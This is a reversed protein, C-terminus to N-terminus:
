QVMSQITRVEERHGEGAGGEGARLEELAREIEKEEANEVGLGEVAVGEGSGDGLAGGTEEGDFFTGEIWGEAAQGLLLEDGALPVLAEAAAAGACEAEGGGAAVVEAVFAGEPGEEGAADAVDETRGAVV